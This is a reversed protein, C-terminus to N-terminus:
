PIAEYGARSDSSMPAYIRRMVLILMAMGLALLVQPNWLCDQIFHGTSMTAAECVVPVDTSTPYTTLFRPNDLVHEKWLELTVPHATSTTSIGILSFYHV